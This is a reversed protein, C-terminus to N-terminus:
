QCDGGQVMEGSERRGGPRLSWLLDWRGSAQLDVWSIAVGWVNPEELPSRELHSMKQKEEEKEEEQGRKASWGGEGGGGTRGGLHYGHFVIVNHVQFMFRQDQHDGAGKAISVGRFIPLYSSHKGTRARTEMLLFLSPSGNRRSDM